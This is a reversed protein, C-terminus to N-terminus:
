SLMQLAKRIAEPADAPVTIERVATEMPCFGDGARNRIAPVLTGYEVPIRAQELVELAPQSLIGAYLGRIGLLCYLFAAARGVVKDAAVYGAYSKGSELLEMLPRIGRRRDAVIDGERCLVCTYNGTHLLEIAHHLEHM